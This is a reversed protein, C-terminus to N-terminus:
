FPIQVSEFPRLGTPIALSSIGVVNSNEAVYAMLDNRMPSPMPGLNSITLSSIIGIEGPEIVEDEDLM